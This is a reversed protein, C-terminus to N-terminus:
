EDLMVAMIGVLYMGGVGVLVITMYVLDIPKTFFYGNACDVRNAQVVIDDRLDDLAQQYADSTTNLESHVEWLRDSIEQLDNKIDDFDSYPTWFPWYAAYNGHYPELFALAVDVGEAMGDAYAEGSADYLEYYAIHTPFEV